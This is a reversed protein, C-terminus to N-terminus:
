PARSVGVPSVGMWTARPRARPSRRSNETPNLCPLSENFRTDSDQHDTDASLRVPRGTARAKRIVVSRADLGEIRPM